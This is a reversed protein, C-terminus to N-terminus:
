QIQLTITTMRQVSGASATVTISVTSPQKHTSSGGCASLSILAIACAIVLGNFYKRRRIVFALLACLGRQEGRGAVAIVRDAIRCDDLQHESDRSHADRHGAFIHM